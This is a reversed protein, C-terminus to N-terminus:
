ELGRSTTSEEEDEDDVGIFEVGFLPLMGVVSHDDRM